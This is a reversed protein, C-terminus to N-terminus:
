QFDDPWDMRLAREAEPIEEGNWHTATVTVKLTDIDEKVEHASIHETWSASTNAEVLVDEIVQAFVKDASSNYIEAGKSNLLQVRIRESTPFTLVLDESTPNSVETEVVWEDEEEELSVSLEWEEKM